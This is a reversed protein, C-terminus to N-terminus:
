MQIQLKRDLDIREKDNLGKWASEYVFFTNLFRALTTNFIVHSDSDKVIKVGFFDEIRKFLIEKNIKNTINIIGYRKIIIKHQTPAMYKLIDFNIDNISLPLKIAGKNKSICFKVDNKSFIDALRIKNKIQILNLFIDIPISYLGNEYKGVYRRPIKLLKSVEEQTGIDCRMNKFFDQLGTLRMDPIITFDFYLSDILYKKRVGRFVNLPCNKKLRNLLIEKKRSHNFGITYAYKLFETSKITIYSVGTSDFKVNDLFLGEKELFLKCFKLFNHDKSKLIVSNYLESIGADADFFGRLFIKIKERDDKIIDPVRIIEKDKDYGYFFKIYRSLFKNRSAILHYCNGVRKIKSNLNYCIKLYKKFMGIHQKSYHIKSKDQHGDALKILDDSICGDGLLYGHFYIHKNMLLDSYKISLKITNGFNSTVSKISKILNSLIKEPNPAKLSIVRLLPLPFKSNLVWGKIAGKSINCGIYKKLSDILQQNLEINDIVVYPFNNLIRDSEFDKKNLLASYLNLVGDYLTYRKSNLLPDEYYRM